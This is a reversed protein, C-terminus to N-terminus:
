NWWSSVLLSVTVVLVREWTRGRPNMKKPSAEVLETIPILVTRNNVVGAAFATYGAMAGHVANQALQMCLIQLFFDHVGPLRSRVYYLHRFSASQM